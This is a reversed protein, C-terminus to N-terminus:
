LGLFIIAMGCLLVAGGALAHTFRELKRIPLLNIGWSSIIVISLMTIITVSGFIGTVLLLGWYSSRAAPYM